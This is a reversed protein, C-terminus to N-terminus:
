MWEGMGCDNGCCNPLGCGGPGKAPCAPQSSGATHAAPTSLQKELDHRKCVPCIPQQGDRTLWEFEHGCQRCVYEYIPMFVSGAIREVTGSARLSRGALGITM